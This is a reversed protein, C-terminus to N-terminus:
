VLGTEELVRVHHALLNSGIGLAAGLESPSRDSMALEDVIRLRSPDALAAHVAARHVLAPGDGSPEVPESLTEVSM